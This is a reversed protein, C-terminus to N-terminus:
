VIRVYNASCDTHEVRSGPKTKNARNMAAHLVQMKTLFMWLFMVSMLIYIKFHNLSDSNLGFINYVVSPVLVVTGLHGIMFGLTFLDALANLIGHECPIEEIDTGDDYEIGFWVFAFWPAFCYLAGSTFYCYDWLLFLRLPASFSYTAM